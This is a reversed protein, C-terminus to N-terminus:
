AARLTIHRPLGLEPWHAWDKKHDLFLHIEALEEDTFKLKPEPPRPDDELEYNDRVM